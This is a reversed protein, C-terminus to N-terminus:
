FLEKPKTVKELKKLERPNEMLIDNINTKLCNLGNLYNYSDRMLPLKNNVSYHYLPQKKPYAIKTSYYKELIKSTETTNLKDKIRRFHSYATLNIQCRTYNEKGLKPFVINFFPTDLYFVAFSANRTSKSKKNLEEIYVRDNYLIDIFEKFTKTFHFSLDRIMRKPFYFNTACTVLSNNPDYNQKIWSYLTKWSPYVRDIILIMDTAYVANESKEVERFSENVLLVDDDTFYFSDNILNKEFLMNLFYIKSFTTLSDLHKDGYFEKFDKKDFVKTREPDVIKRFGSSDEKDVYLYLNERFMEHYKHTYFLKFIELNHTTVITIM